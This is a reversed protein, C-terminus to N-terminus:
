LLLQAAAIYVQSGAHDPDYLVLPKGAITAEAHKVSLEVQFPYVLHGYKTHLAEMITKTM